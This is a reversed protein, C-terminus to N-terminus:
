GVAEKDSGESKSDESQDEDNSGEAAPKAADPADGPEAKVGGQAHEVLADAIRPDVKLILSRLVTENLQLQRNITTLQDADVKFYALWYTGKRRGKIPYALRREEWLRSVVMEGNSKEVLEAIQGSIGGPDRSYRNSDFIFLGEYMNM